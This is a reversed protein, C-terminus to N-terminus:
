NTVWVCHYDTAKPCVIDMDDDDQSNVYSSIIM